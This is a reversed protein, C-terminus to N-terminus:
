KIRAPTKYNWFFFFSFANYVVQVLNFKGKLKYLGQLRQSSFNSCDSSPLVRRITTKASSTPSFEIESEPDMKEM